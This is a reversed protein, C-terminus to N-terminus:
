ACSILTDCQSGPHPATCYLDAAGPLRPQPYQYSVAQKTKQTRECLTSLRHWLKETDLSTQLEKTKADGISKRVQLLTREGDYPASCVAQPEPIGGLFSPSPFALAFLRSQRDRQSAWNPSHPVEYM